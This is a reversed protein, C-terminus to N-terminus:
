SCQLCEEQPNRKWVNKVGLEDAHDDVVENLRGVASNFGDFADSLYGAQVEALEVVLWGLLLGAFLFKTEEEALEHLLDILDGLAAGEKFLVLVNDSCVLLRAEFVEATM